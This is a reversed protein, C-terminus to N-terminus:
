RTEFAGAPAKEKTWGGNLLNLIGITFDEAQSLVTQTRSFLLVLKRNFGSLLIKPKPFQIQSHPAVKPVKRL